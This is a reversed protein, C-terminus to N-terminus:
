EKIIKTTTLSNGFRITLIYIGHNLIATNIHISNNFISYFKSQILQGQISYINIQVEDVEGFESIINIHDDFPNPYVILADTLIITEEFSGQCEHDTYVTLTNTSPLLEFKINSNSTKFVDGNFIINYNLGGSLSLQVNRNSYDVSSKVVLDKPQNIVIEFCQMYEPEDEISFCLEYEGAMLNRIDLTNTFKYSKNLSAGTISATYNHMELASMYIKGNNSSRCTESTTQITFNNAPLFFVSCGILDVTKNPLTTLCSDEVDPVGDGDDDDCITSYQAWDDILWNEKTLAENVDDVLICRLNSNNKLEFQNLIDNYGNDADVSFLRNSNAYVSTLNTNNQINLATLNNSSCHLNTLATNSSLNLESIENSICKLSEIETNAAVELISLMNNSVDLTQLLINSYLDLSAINNGSCRLTNLSIFDQIGTLDTIGKNSINLESISEINVTPIYDDLPGSITYDLNLDILIQEFADDPVFTESYHCDIKYSVITDKQWGSASNAASPDDVEICFLNPNSIANMYSIANSNGNKLNLIDLQNSVCNLNTLKTNSSLDISTLQNYSCTLTELNLLNKFDIELLQNNGLDLIELYNNSNVDIFNMGNDSCDLNILASNGSMDLSDIQNSSCNLNELDKFYSIGTLDLINKNSVDLDSITEISFTSVYSDITADYGLDILTQEFASDPIHTEFFHCNENFMASEDKQWNPDINSTDDVEICSLDPNDTAIFTELNENNNNKVNLSTLENTSCNISTLRINNSLDLNVIKNNTCSLEELSDLNVINIQSFENQDINLNKLRINDDLDLSQINNQSCNLKRLSYSLELDSSNIQNNSCDLFYLENLVSVNLSSINNNSCMLTDLLFNVNLDLSDIKNSSCNIINLNPNNSVILQSLKNGSISLDLLSNNSNIDISNLRNNDCNLKQLKTNLNLDLSEIQNSNCILEILETNVTVDLESLNNLSCNLKSLLTNSILDLSTLLNGSCNLYELLSNKSLDLSTMQNNNCDLNKLAINSDVKILTLRNFACYLQELDKNFSLDLGINTIQNNNCNLVTLATNGSIDLSTLNNADCILYRLDLNSSVNLSDLLNNGCILTDLLTNYELDLVKIYNNYCKLTRLNTDLSIDIQKLLNSSCDLWVLSDFYEIGSLDSIHKGSIDLKKISNISDTYVFGDISGRDYGLEILAMEFNEDQIITKNVMCSTDYSAADDKQWFSTGFSVTDGVEICVLNTNFRADLYKLDNKLVLDVLINSTCNLSRLNILQSVDLNSLNNQSCNLSDVSTFDSIGTLDSIGKNSIDLFTITDINNTPIFNDGSIDDFLALSAEFNDDPIYTAAYCEEKYVAFDDKQWDTNNVSATDDVKICYLNPNNLSNFTTLTDNRGNNIDLFELQNNSCDLSTLSSNNHADLSTVLNGSLDLTLLTSNSDIDLSTLLNSNCILYELKFNKSVDLVELQNDSCTLFTLSDNKSVDLNAFQNGSCFLNILYIDNSVDLDNLLNNSCDFYLLTDLGLGSLSNIQNSSCFLQQISKNNIINLTQLQNGSCNLEKLQTNSEINLNQLRNNSCYLSELSNQGSLVTTDIRNLSFDLKILQTNTSLDLEAIFNNQCNLNELLINESVDLNDLLNSSCDLNSLKINESVDISRIRNNSCNLIRLSDFDEIGNLSDINCNFVNLETLTNIESTLIWGNIITDSDIKFDILAQEFNPDPILTSDQAQLHIVSLVSLLIILLRYQM